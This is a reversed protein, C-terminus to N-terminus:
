TSSHYETHFPWTPTKMSDIPIQPFYRKFAHVVVKCQGGVLHALDASIALSYRTLKAGWLRNGIDM